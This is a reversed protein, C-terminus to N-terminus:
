TKGGKINMAAQIDALHFIQGGGAWSGEDLETLMTWHNLRGEYTGIIDDVIEGAKAVFEARTDVTLAGEPTTVAIRLPSQDLNEGGVYITGAPQEIYYAWVLSQAGADEIPAREAKLLANSLRSMLADQKQKNLAGQAATVQLLPM